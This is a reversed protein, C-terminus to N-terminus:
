LALDQGNVRVRATIPARLSNAAHCAAEARRVVAIVRDHPAATELDIVYSLADMASGEPGAVGYKEATPFSARVDMSANTVEVAMVSAFRTLQTLM